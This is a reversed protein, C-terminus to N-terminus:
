PNLFDAIRLRVTDIECGIALHGCDSDLILTEAGILPAIKLAPQCNVIQDRQNVIILTRAKIQEAAATLSGKFPAAIDHSLIAKLQRHRDAVPFAAPRITLSEWYEAFHERPTHAVRYDPTRALLATILEISHIIEDEPQRCRWGNEIIEIQTCIELLDYSTLQPSAVYLVARSIFDPYNVIWEFGQFSGLSGGIIAYLHELGFKETVLRYQTRMLDRINFLPFKEGPQRRSNSPSSSVGNGLADVAIIFYRTTDVLKDPGMLKGIDGSTGGLWTPYLIANSRQPNLKGYTRFGLRCDRIVADNELRFDGIEYFQQDGAIIFGNLAVL